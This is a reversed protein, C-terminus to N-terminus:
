HGGSRPLEPFYVPRRRERLLHNALRRNRPSRYRGQLSRDLRAQLRGLAVAVGRDSIQNMSAVIACSCSGAAYIAQVIRPFAAEGKGAVLIMERCRTASPALCTQHLGPFSGISRWGDRVSFRRLEDWCRRPRNLIRPGPQIAYVTLQFSSFAVDVVVTGSEGDPRTPDCKPSGRIQEVLRQYTPEAKHAMRAM